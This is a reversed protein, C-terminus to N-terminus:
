SKYKVQFFEYNSSEAKDSSSDDKSDMMDRKGRNVVDM